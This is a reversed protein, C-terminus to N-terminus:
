FRERVDGLNANTEFEGKLMCIVRLSDSRIIFAQQLIMRIVKCAESPWLKRGLTPAGAKFERADFGAGLPRSYLLLTGVRVRLPAGM